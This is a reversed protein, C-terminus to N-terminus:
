KESILKIIEENLGPPIKEEEIDIEFGLKYEGSIAKNVEEQAM